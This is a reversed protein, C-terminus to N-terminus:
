ERFNLCTIQRQLSQGENVKSAGQPRRGLGFALLLFLVFFALEVEDDDENKTKARKEGKAKAHAKPNTKPESRALLFAFM